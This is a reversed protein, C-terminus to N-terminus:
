GSWTPATGGSARVAWAQYEGGPGLQLALSYTQDKTAVSAIGVFGLATQQLKVNQVTKDPLQQGRRIAAKTFLEASLRPHTM